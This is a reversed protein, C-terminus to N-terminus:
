TRALFSMCDFHEGRFQPAAPTKGNGMSSPWGVHQVLSPSHCWEKWGAKKFSDVIGGDINCHGRVPCEPRDVLHRASLLIKVAMRSFVLALAGKGMQNSLFWGDGNSLDQNRQVTYLNWYGTEPYECADLYDRLGRCTLVDDQFVAYRDAEPDRIYLEYLTLTWNGATRLKEERCTLPLDFKRYQEYTGGDVFLRPVDFGAARLSSLTRPLMSDIREPVTTVGYTWRVIPEEL